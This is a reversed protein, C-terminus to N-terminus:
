SFIDFGQPVVSKEDSSGVSKRGSGVGNEASKRVFQGADESAVESAESAVESSILWPANGQGPREKWAKVRVIQGKHEVVVGELLPVSIEGTLQRATKARTLGARRMLEGVTDLVGALNVRPAGDTATLIFTAIQRKKDAEAPDDRAEAEKAEAAADRLRLVCSTVPDGDQDIGLTVVDLDFAQEFSKDLDRQKTVKIVGDAVEIETDTAARLLSHGRAGKARDKGSHHIVMLHASTQARVADLHRVMTGMDTSANEDGGGMARSLTDVVILGFRIGSAKISALLPGLDADARLLNVPHMLMRFDPADGHRAVLAAARKRAGGGGEAAIYLAPLAATRKGAWQLGRTVHYAIDMAVFTKGVNSEGYLVSMAGQDLVDKILPRASSVLAGAAAEGLSTFTFLKTTGSPSASDEGTQEQEQEQEQKPGIPEFWGSVQADRRGTWGGLREAQSYIFDAGLGFPAKFSDYVRDPRESEADLEAKESWECFL